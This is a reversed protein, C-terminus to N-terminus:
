MVRKMLDREKMEQFKQYTKHWHPMYRYHQEGQVEFGLRLSQSYCDIELRRGTHPNLLWEPRISKFPTRFISELISRVYGERTNQKKNTYYMKGKGYIKKQAGIPECFKGKEQALRQLEMGDLKEKRLKLIEDKYNLGTQSTSLMTGLTIVCAGILLNMSM